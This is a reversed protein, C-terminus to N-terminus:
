HLHGALTGSLQVPDPQTLRAPEPQRMQSARSNPQPRATEDSRSRIATRKTHHTVPINTATGQDHRQTPPRHRRAVYERVTYYSLEAHHGDVLCTWIDRIAIEPNDSIMADIHSRLRSTLIRPRPQPSGTPPRHARAVYDRVTHYSLEAHHDDVLRTWINQITIEPDASILADIHSRLQPTLIGHRQDATPAPAPTPRVPLSIDERLVHLVTTHDVSLLIALRGILDDGGAAKRILEFLGARGMRHQATRPDAPQARARTIYDRVTAYSVATHHQEVLTKWISWITADPDAVLLLDIQGVLPALIPHTTGRRDPYPPQGTLAKIITRRPVAFQRSLRNVLEDRAAHGRIATAVDTQESDGRQGTGVTPTPKASSIPPEPTSPRRELSLAPFVTSLAPVTRGTVLALRTIQISGISGPPHNLYTRLYSPRLHNATALRRIFSEVSEDPRLPVQIPLRRPQDAAPKSSNM